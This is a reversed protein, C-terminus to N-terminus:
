PVFSGSDCAPVLLDARGPYDEDGPGDVTVHMQLPGGGNALIMTLPFLEGAVLSFSYSTPISDPNEVSVINANDNTYDRYAVDGGWIVLENDNLPGTNFVYEGTARAFLFGQFVVTWQSCDLPAPQGPLQCIAPGTPWDPSSFNIDTITGATQFGYNGRWDSTEYGGGGFGNNQTDAGHYYYDNTYQYYNVGNYAAPTPQIM